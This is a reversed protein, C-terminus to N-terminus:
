INEKILSKIKEASCGGGSHVLKENIIIAPTQMIGMQVIKTIDQIYEVEISEFELAIKKVLEYLTKCNTCGTGLVQIKM